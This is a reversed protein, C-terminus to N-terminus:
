YYAGLTTIKSVDPYLVGAAAKSSSRPTYWIAGERTIALKPQDTIQPTPYYTFKETKPDFRILAGGQGGDSIWIKDERDPWVDYPESFAMPVDWEVIKGTTPDIRGLKGNNFGGYWIMGTSDAGLRRITCPQTLAAYETFKETRPDFKGIKCRRFEAFWVNEDKDLTVGYPAAGQTPVKWVTSKGTQRDWKGIMDGVIVTFWVNDKSDVVPTHGRGKSRGTSDMPYRTMSGTKPDLRGLSFGATEAWFVHGNRDVTLGHPDAKPDPMMFDRFEATRPDVRGIRNPVSRDTYWVNGDPDFHPEQTRRQKNGADIKADLPLYYEVYMAKGLVAEDVPFDTDAKLGRKSSGPGFHKGLYAVITARDQASLTGPPILAGRMGGGDLMQDIFHNWQTEHYQKSPFFSKGHCYMCQKELLPRGPEKPYLEDYSVLTVEGPRQTTFGFEGQRVGQAASERLTLNLTERAGAALTIKQPAAELGRARVTVEYTGPFLNVARYRGNSTYVMFLVNKDTNTLHVQAAKFARPAQVTGSLAATGPLGDGDAARSPVVALAGYLLALTIVPALTALGLRTRM